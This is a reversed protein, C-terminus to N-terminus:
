QKERKNKINISNCKGTLIIDAKSQNLINISPANIAISVKKAEQIKINIPFELNIEEKFVVSSNENSINLTDINRLFVKIKCITFEPKKFKSESAIYLTRGSNEVEFYQILNQDTEIIVKEIDSKYIEVLGSTLIHLRLFSSVSIEKSVINANGQIEM